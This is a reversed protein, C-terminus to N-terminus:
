PAKTLLGRLDGEIAVLISSQVLPFKALEMTDPTGGGAYKGFIKGIKAGRLVCRGPMGTTLMTGSILGSNTSM